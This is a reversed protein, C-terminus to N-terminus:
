CRESQTDCYEQLEAKFQLFEDYSDTFKTEGTKLNVTVYFFWPGDEPHLAAQISDHGPAV